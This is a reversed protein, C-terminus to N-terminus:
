MPWLRATDEGSLERPEEGQLRSLFFVIEGVKAKYVVYYIGSFATFARHLANSCVTKCSDVRLPASGCFLSGHVQPGVHASEM